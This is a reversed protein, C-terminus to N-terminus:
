WFNRRIIFFSFSLSLLTSLYNSFIITNFFLVLCLLSLYTKLYPLSLFSLMSSVHFYSIIISFIGDIELDTDFDDEIEEEEVRELQHKTQKTSSKKNLHQVYPDELEESTKERGISELFESDHWIPGPRRKGKSMMLSADFNRIALLKELPLTM